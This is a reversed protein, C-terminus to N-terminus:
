DFRKLKLRGKSNSFDQVSNVNPWDESLKGCENIYFDSSFKMRPQIGYFTSNNCTCNCEVTKRSRGWDREYSVVQYDRTSSFTNDFNFDAVDLTNGILSSNDVYTRNLQFNERNYDTAINSSNVHSPRIFVNYELGGNNENHNPNKVQWLVGKLRRHDRLTANESDISSNTNPINLYETENAPQPSVVFLPNSMELAEKEGIIVEYLTNSSDFYWAFINDILENEIDDPVEIGPSVMANQTFDATEINPINIVPLYDIDQYKMNFLDGSVENENFLAMLSPLSEMLNTLKIYDTNNEKVADLITKKIDQKNILQQLRESIEYLKINVNEDEIDHKNATLAVKDIKSKVFNDVRELPIEEKLSQSIEEKNCSILAITISFLFLISFKVYMKM